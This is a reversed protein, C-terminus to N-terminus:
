ACNSCCVFAIIEMGSGSDQWLSVIRGVYPFKSVDGSFVLVCDRALIDQSPMYMIYIYGVNCVYQVVFCLIYISLM